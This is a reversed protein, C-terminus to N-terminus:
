EWRPRNDTFGIRNLTNYAGEVMIKGLADKKHDIKSEVESLMQWYIDLINEQEATESKVCEAKCQDCKIAAFYDRDEVLEVRFLQCVPGAGLRDCKHMGNVYSCHDDDEYVEIEPKIKM